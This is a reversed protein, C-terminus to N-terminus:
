PGAVLSDSEMYYLYTELEVTPVEGQTPFSLQLNRFVPGSDAPPMPAEPQQEAPESAATLALCCSTLATFLGIRLARSRM